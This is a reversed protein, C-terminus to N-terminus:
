VKSSFTRDMEEKYQQLQSEGDHRLQQMGEALKSEFDRRGGSEVEM